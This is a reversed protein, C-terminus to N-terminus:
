MKSRLFRKKRVRDIKNNRINHVHICQGIIFAKECKDTLNLIIPCTQNIMMTINNINPFEKMINEEQLTENENIFDNKILICRELCQQNHRQLNPSITFSMPSRLRLLDMDLELEQM